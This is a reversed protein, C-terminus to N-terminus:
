IGHFQFFYSIYLIFANLEEESPKKNFEKYAIVTGKQELVKFYYGGLGKILDNKLNSNFISDKYPEIKLGHPFHISSEFHINNITTFAIM